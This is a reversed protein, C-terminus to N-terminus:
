NEKLKLSFIYSIFLLTITFIYLFNYSTYHLIFGGVISFFIGISIINAQIATYVPRKDEPSINILLNTSSLRFGDLSAGVLFFMFMYIYLSYFNLALILVLIHLIIIINIILKNKNMYSLKGWLINSLMSGLMQVTIISAIAVGNLNIKTAADLIIFPLSFLYSYSLLFTIIQIQLKKDKKLIIISNKLFEKFSKEKKSINQKIPESITGFAFFGISMLLSSVIFLIGYSIPAEYTNMIFGASAGSLLSAFGAFFQRIAMSKGRFEKTFIKAIIEKFYIAGFGASFSFIFLGLGICFLTINPSSEGFLLISFGIFFWALFRYLFVRRMYKQMHTYSQAHFAAYLQVFIAGGRLLSSFIGVLIASGGFFTVMLPLITNAEAITTAISVFFGHIINKYHNLKNNM